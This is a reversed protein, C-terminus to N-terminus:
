PVIVIVCRSGRNPLPTLRTRASSDNPALANRFRANM